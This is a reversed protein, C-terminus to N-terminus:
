TPLQVPVVQLHPQATSPRVNSVALRPGTGSHEEPPLLSATPSSSADMGALLQDLTERLKMLQFWAWPPEDGQAIRDAAWDRAKQMEDRTM